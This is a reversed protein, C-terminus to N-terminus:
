GAHLLDRMSCGSGAMRRCRARENLGGDLLVGFMGFVAGLCYGYEEDGGVCGGRRGLVGSRTGLVWIDQVVVGGVCTGGSEDM